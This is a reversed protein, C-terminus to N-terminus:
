MYHGNCIVWVVVTMREQRTYSCDRSEWSLWRIGEFTNERSFSAEHRASRESKECSQHKPARKYEHKRDEWRLANWRSGQSAPSKLSGFNSIKLKYVERVDLDCTQAINATSSQAAGSTIKMPLGLMRRALNGVTLPQDLSCTLLQPQCLTSPKMTLVVFHICLESQHADM